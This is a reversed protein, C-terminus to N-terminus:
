EKVPEIPTQYCEQTDSGQIAYKDLARDSVSIQDGNTTKANMEAVYPTHDLATAYALGTARKMMMAKRESPISPDIMVDRADLVYNLIDGWGVVNREADSLRKYRKYAYDVRFVNEQLEQNKHHVCLIPDSMPLIVKECSLKGNYLLYCTHVLRRFSELVASDFRGEKKLKDILHDYDSRYKCCKGASDPQQAIRELEAFWHLYEERGDILAKRQGAELEKRMQRQDEELEELKEHLIVPLSENRWGTGCAHLPFKGKRLEGNQHYRLIDEERFCEGALWYGDYILEMRERLWYPISGEIERFMLRRELGDLAIKRLEAGMEPDNYEPFSSFKFKQNKLRDKIFDDTNRIDSYSSFVVIGMKCLMEFGETHLLQLINRNDVIQPGQLLITKGGAALQFINLELDNLNKEDQGTVSDFCGSFVPEFVAFCDQDQNVKVAPVQGGRKQGTDESSSRVERIESVLRDCFMKCRDAMRSDVFNDERRGQIIEEAQELRKQILFRDIIKQNGCGSRRSYAQATWVLVQAYFLPLREHDGVCLFEELPQVAGGAPDPLAVCLDDFTGRNIKQNLFVLLQLHMELEGEQWSQSAQLSRQWLRYFEQEPLESKGREKKWEEGIEDFRRRIEKTDEQIQLLNKVCKWLLEHVYSTDNEKEKLLLPVISWLVQCFNKNEEDSTFSRNEAYRKKLADFLTEANYFATVPLPTESVNELLDRLEEIIRVTENEDTCFEQLSRNVAEALSRKFDNFWATLRGAETKTLEAAANNLIGKSLDDLKENNTILFQFAPKVLTKM